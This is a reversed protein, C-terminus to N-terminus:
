ASGAVGQQQIVDIEDQDVVWTEKLAASLWDQFAPLAYIAEVYESAVDSVPTNTWSEPTSLRVATLSVFIQM